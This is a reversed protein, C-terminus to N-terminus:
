NEIAMLVSGLAAGHKMLDSVAAVMLVVGLSLDLGSTHGRNALESIRARFKAPMNGLGSLILREVTEDVFGRQAYDLIYASERVTRGLLKALPLEIRRRRSGRAFFNFSSTMGVVLDDGSPTFGSGTGLLGLYNDFSYAGETDGRAIPELVTEAFESFARGGVLELAGRSASYLLKLGAASKVIAREAIPEIPSQHLLTSKFLHAGRIDVVTKGVRLCAADLAFREGPAFARAFDPVSGINVTIPSHLGGRLLLIIGNGHELYASNRFTRTVRGKANRAALSRVLEGIGEAKM